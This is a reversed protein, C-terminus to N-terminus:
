SGRAERASSEWEHPLSEPDLWRVRKLARYIVFYLPIQVVAFAFIIWAFGPDVPHAGAALFVGFALVALLAAMGAYSLWRFLRVARRKGKGIGVVLMAATGVVIEELRHNEATFRAVDGLCDFLAMATTSVAVFFAMGAPIAQPSACSPRNGPREAIRHAQRAATADTSHDFNTM